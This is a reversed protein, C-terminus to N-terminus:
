TPAAAAPSRRSRISIAPTATISRTIRARRRARRRRGRRHGGHRHGDRRGRARVADRRPRRRRERRSHAGHRRRAHQRPRVARALGHCVARVPGRGARVHHSRAARHVQDPQCVAYQAYAGHAKGLATGGIYVRDGAKWGQVGAGLQDIVGAADAGAHLAPRSSRTPAPACTPTTRISALPTSACACRARAPRGSRSRRRAQLVEPGGFERALIAQMRRMTCQRHHVPQGPEFRRLVGQRHQRRHDRRRHQDRGAARQDEGGARPEAAHDIADRM